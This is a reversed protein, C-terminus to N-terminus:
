LRARISAPATHSATARRRPPRRGIAGAPRVAVALAYLAVAALAVSAGAALELHYSAYLGALGAVAALVAALVLAPVLRRALRLAAAGPAVLLALVLLSGLGQVAAVTAVALGALLGAEVRAPRAGLPRAADPDFAALALRRHGAVLAVAVGAALGAAIAVDRGDAGLLDGFLLEQLRAPVDPALGLLAGAGVLATVTVAVAADQGPGRVRGALATGGAGALAGAAAGAAPPIGALTAGVLGPLLGHAFSEAAYSQRFLVVWVGLPGCAASLVLLELLARQAFEPRLPDLLADM